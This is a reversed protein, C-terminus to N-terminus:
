NYDQPTGFKHWIHEVLDAKLQRHMTRDRVRNRIGIINNLNSPMDTSFTLDVHSTRNAETQTFESVDFQTYGDREDEVIM